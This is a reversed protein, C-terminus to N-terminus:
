VLLYLGKKSLALPWRRTKDQGHKFVCCSVPCPHTQKWLRLQSSESQSSESQSGSNGAQGKGRGECEIGCKVELGQGGEM